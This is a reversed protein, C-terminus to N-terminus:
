RSRTKSLNAPRAVRKGQGTDRSVKAGPATSSGTGRGANLGAKTRL